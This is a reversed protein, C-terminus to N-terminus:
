ADPHRYLHAPTGMFDILGGDVAGLREALRKSPANAPRVLSILPGLGLQDRGFGIAATAAEQAYGHGWADRVLTWAIEVGPWGEPSLFGVRGIFRGDDRREVAWLGHGRLAWHGLFLAMQRWAGDRDITDGTGLHQMVEPDACMAAYADLDTSAFGRLRLRATRFGPIAIM